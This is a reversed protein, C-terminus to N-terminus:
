NGDVYGQLYVYKTTLVGDKAITAREIISDSDDGLLHPLVNDILERGFDQSANRPLECPLNDVAMVTINGEDTLAQEVIGQSPEYDYIPDDITSPQKTSPISGEIDCTIDAIVKIKFEPTCIDERKFLAPARPDWFAGAILMDAQEAYPLFSSEYNEPHKFFDDRIFDSGDSPTNYDRSNLQVFVPFDFTRYLFEAPSVRRIGMGMLVEMAGKSVRGGGTLAIKIPPLKVKKYETKLDDLDFCEHARRIHYLNYRKGYTWIGNYAGVIGAYRGFAVIRKGTKDTLTEYDILRINKELIGQLLARNYPQAKITHSFFFYTKNEILDKIPVEKVGMLVDCDAVSDTVTVQNTRYEDNEFCRIDSRQCLLEVDFTNKVEKAQAPTFPVRRDVPIKGEKLIGIKISTM